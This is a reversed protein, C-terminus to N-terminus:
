VTENTSESFEAFTEIWEAVKGKVNKQFFSLGNIGNPHRNLSQPRNKMYPLIYPAIYHYYNLLDRKTYNEKKWYVKDLNTLKLNKGNLSVSKENEDPNIWEGTKGNKLPKRRVVTDPSPSSKKSVTKKVSTKAEIKAPSKEKKVTKTEMVKEKKVETPKKDTPLGMFIPVRM